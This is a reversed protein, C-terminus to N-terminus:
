PLQSVCGQNEIWFEIKDTNDVQGNMNLDSSLYGSKGAEIFWGDIKDLHDINGDGNVDGAIMVSVGNGTNKLAALGGYASGTSAFSYTYTGQSKILPVASIVPLHNRHRVVVFLSDKIKTTFRVLPSGDLNVVQGMSNLFCAKRQIVTSEDASQVDLTDRLEVLVWDVIDYPVSDVCEGGDYNWPDTNFPQDLPIFPYLGTSMSSGNYPGELFLTIDLNFGWYYDIIADRWKQAIKEEGSANPHVGDYTDAVKDFGTNQDVIIIPSNSNYKTVKINPIQSNFYNTWYNRVSDDRPIIQAIFLVVNPSYFRLTDILRSYRYNILNNNIFSESIGGDNVAQNIDNTGMHIISVDPTYLQLWDSMKGAGPEGSNGWWLQFTTWGSHGEHDQDFSQGMHQPWEPNGNKNDQMSGVLDFDFGDDLLKTWLNYRYSYRPYSAQTISNGLPQIRIPQAFAEIGPLVTLVTVLLGYVIMKLSLLHSAM